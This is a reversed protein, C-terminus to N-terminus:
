GKQPAALGNALLVFIEDALQIFAEDGTEPRWRSVTLWLMLSTVGALLEPYIDTDPDTGTREAAWEVIVKRLPNFAQVQPGLLGPNACVLTTLRQLDRAHCTLSAMSASRLAQLPPEDAPRAALSAALCEVRGPDPDVIAAEKSDFYNFFTRKSVNAAAAIEDVTVNELGREAVLRWAASQLARFTERKKRERLGIPEISATSSGAHTRIHGGTQPVPNNSEM